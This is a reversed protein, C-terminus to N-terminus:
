VTSLFLSIEPSSYIFLSSHLSLELQCFCSRVDKGLKEYTNSNRAKQIAIAALGTFCLRNHLRASINDTLPYEALIDLMGVMTDEDWFIFALQLRHSSSDRLVMSRGPGDMADLVEKEHFIPGEFETPKDTRKRLNLAFQHFIEFTILFSRHQTPILVIFTLTLYIFFSICM